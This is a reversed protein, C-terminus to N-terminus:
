KKRLRASLQKEQEDAPYKTSFFTSSHQSAEKLSSMEQQALLIYPMSLELNLVAMIQQPKLSPINKLLDRDILQKLKKFTAVPNETENLTTQLNVLTDQQGFKNNIRQLKDNIFAIRQQAEILEVEHLVDNPSKNPQDLLDLYIKLKPYVITYRGAASKLEVTKKICLQQLEGVRIAAETSSINQLSM